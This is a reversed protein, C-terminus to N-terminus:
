QQLIIAFFLGILFRNRFDNVSTKMATNRSLKEIGKEINPKTGVTFACSVGVVISMPYAELFGIASLAISGCM